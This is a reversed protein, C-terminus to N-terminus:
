ITHLLQQTLTHSTENTNIVQTVISKDLSITHVEKADEEQLVPDGSTKTNIQELDNQHEVPETNNEEGLIADSAMKAQDSVPRTIMAKKYSGTTLKKIKPREDLANLGDNSRKLYKKPSKREPSKYFTSRKANNGACLALPYISKFTLPNGSEECPEDGEVDVKTDPSNSAQELSERNTAPLHLQANRFSSNGAYADFQCRNALEMSSNCGFALEGAAPMRISSSSSSANPELQLGNEKALM